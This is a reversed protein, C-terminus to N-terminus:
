AQSDLRQVEPVCVRRFGLPKDNNLSELADEEDEEDFRRQHAGFGKVSAAAVPTDWRSDVHNTLEAELTYHKRSSM